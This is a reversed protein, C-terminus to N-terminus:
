GFLLSIIHYIKGSVSLFHRKIVTKIPQLRTIAVKEAELMPEELNSILLLGNSPETRRLLSLYLLDSPSKSTSTKCSFSVRGTSVM